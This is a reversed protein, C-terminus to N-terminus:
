LEAVQRIWTKNTPHIEALKLGILLKIEDEFNEFDDGLNMWEIQGDLEGVSAGELFNWASDVAMELALDQLEEPIDRYRM